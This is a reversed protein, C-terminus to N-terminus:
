KNFLSNLNHRVTLTNPHDKGYSNEFIILARRWLQEAEAYKQIAYLLAGLNNLSKAVDHHDVGLRKERITLARRLFADADDYNKMSYFLVGFNDLSQAVDQHDSGLKKERISLARTYFEISESYREQIELLVALNNLIVAVDLDETGVQKERTSLTFRYISEAEEYKSQSRLSLALNNLNQVIDPHDSDLQTERVKLARRYFSEAEEYFGQDHLLGALNELSTAIFLHNRDLYKEQIEIVKRYLQEAKKYAVIDHFYLAMKTLLLAIAKWTHDNDNIIETVTEAHSLLDKCTPYCKPTTYEERPFINSLTNLLADRYLSREDLSMQDKTVSQVLRHIVIFRPEPIILSYSCLVNIADDSYFEDITASIVNTEVMYELVKTLLIRPIADPSVLSCIYLLDRAQSVHRVEDLALSWTTAVTDPYEVPPPERKWLEKRRNTFLEFYEVYSKNRTKIYSAAQALALPLDGLGEAIAEADNDNEQGTRKHLFALSEKRSWIKIELPTQWDQNRSTVLVHGGSSKPLYDKINRSNGVNDFVLLWNTHRDLWKRVAQIVFEQEASNKEPLDLESALAVYDLSLTEKEAARMWWVLDYLDNNRYAYEIAVQSKGIGGLGYLVQQTHTSHNTKTLLLRLEHLVENRGTFDPNRHPVNWIPPLTGLIKSNHLLYKQDVTKFNPKSAPKARAKDLGKLLAVKAQNEDSGIFSVYARTALLGEIKCERVIVPILLGLEGTPDKQLATHWELTTFQSKFYDPSLVALTRECEKSANDINGIVSRGATNFDWQQFVVSFGAEELIWAIWSAKGEDIGTYSIFFDKKM